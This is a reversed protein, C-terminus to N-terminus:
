KGQSDQEFSLAMKQVNSFTKSIPTYFSGLKNKAMNRTSKNGNKLESPSQLLNYLLHLPVPDAHWLTSFPARHSFPIFPLHIFYSFFINKSSLLM